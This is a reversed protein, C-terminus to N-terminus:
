IFGLATKSRSIGPPAASNMKVDVYGCTLHWRIIVTELRYHSSVIGWKYQRPILGALHVRPEGGSALIRDISDRDLQIGLM